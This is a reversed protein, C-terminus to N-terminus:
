RVKFVVEPQTASRAAFSHQEFSQVFNQDLALNVIMKKIHEYANTNDGKIKELAGKADVKM